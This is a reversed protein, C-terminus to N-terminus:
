VAQKYDSNLNNKYYSIICNDLNKSTKLVEKDTTGFKLIQTYLKERLEEM